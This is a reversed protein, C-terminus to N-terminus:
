PSNDTKAESPSKEARLVVVFNCNTIGANMHPLFTDLLQQFNVCHVRIKTKKLYMPLYEKRIQSNCQTLGLFQTFANHRAARKKRTTSVLRLCIDEVCLEYIKNRIELATLKASTREIPLCPSAELFTWSDRVISLLRIRSHLGRPIASLQRVSLTLSRANKGPYM